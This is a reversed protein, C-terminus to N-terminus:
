YVTNESSESGSSYDRQFASTCMLEESLLYSRVDSCSYEHLNLDFCLGHSTTLDRASPRECHDKLLCAALARRLVVSADCDGGAASVDIDDHVIQMVLGLPGGDEIDFVPHGIVAELVTIGVSWIDSKSECGACTSQLVREPAMYAITGKMHSAEDVRVSMSADGGFTTYKRQAGELRECLGFDSLKCAGSDDVLVNSPKIDRHAVGLVGHLYALGNALCRLVCMAARPHECLAGRRRVVSELSGERMLEFTFTAENARADYGYGLCRVVGGHPDMTAFTVARADADESGDRGRASIMARVVAAERRAQTATSADTARVRKVAARARAAAWWGGDVVVCTSGRGLVRRADVRADDEVRVRADGTTGRADVDVFARGFARADDRARPGRSAIVRPPTM